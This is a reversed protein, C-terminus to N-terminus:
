VTINKIIEMAEKGDYDFGQSLSLAKLNKMISSVNGPEIGQIILRLEDGSVPPPLFETLTQVTYYMSDPVEGGIAKVDEIAKLMNKIQNKIVALVEADPVVFEEGASEASKREALVKKDVEAIVGVIAVSREQNRAKRSELHEKKLEKYM